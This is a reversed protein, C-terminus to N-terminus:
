DNDKVQKFQDLMSLMADDIKGTLWTEFDQFSTSKVLDPDFSISFSIKPKNKNPKLTSVPETYEEEKPEPEDGNSDNMVDKLSLIQGGEATFEVVKLDGQFDHAIEVVEMYKNKAYDANNKFAYYVKADKERPFDHIDREGNIYAVWKGNEEVLEIVSIWIEKKGILQMAQFRTNGGLITGDSMVLLPETQIGMMDNMVKKEDIVERPNDEWLHLEEVPVLTRNVRLQERTMEAETTM